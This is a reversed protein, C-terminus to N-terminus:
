ICKGYKIDEASQFVMSSVHLEAQIQLRVVEVVFSRCYPSPKSDTQVTIQLLGEREEESISPHDWHKGLSEKGM